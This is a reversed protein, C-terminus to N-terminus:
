SVERADPLHATPSVRAPAGFSPAPEVGASRLRAALAEDLRRLRAAGVVQHGKFVGLAHEKPESVDLFRQRLWAYAAAYTRLEQPSLSALEHALAAAGPGASSAALHDTMNPRELGPLGPQIVARLAAEPLGRCM